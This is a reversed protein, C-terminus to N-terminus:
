RRSDGIAYATGTEEFAQRAAFHLTRRSDLVAPSSTQFGIQRKWKLRGSRDFVAFMTLPDGPHMPVVGQVCVSGSRDATCPELVFSEAPLRDSKPWRAFPVLRKAWRSVGDLRLAILSESGVRSRDPEVVKAAVYLTDGGVGVPLTVRGRATFDWLSFGNTDFAHLGEKDAVYLRDDSALVETPGEFDTAWGGSRAARHKLLLRRPTGNSSVTWLSARVGRLHSIYCKGDGGFSWSSILRGPAFVWLRKGTASFAWVSGTDVRVSVVKGAGDITVPGTIRV